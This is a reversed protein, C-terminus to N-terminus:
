KATPFEVALLFAPTPTPTTPPSATVYNLNEMLQSKYIRGGWDLCQLNLAAGQGGASSLSLPVQIWGWALHVVEM